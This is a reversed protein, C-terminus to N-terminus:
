PKPILSDVFRNVLERIMKMGPGIALPHGTKRNWFESRTADIDEQEGFRELMETLLLKMKSESFDNAKRCLEYIHPFVLHFVYCGSTKQITYERPTAFAEAYIESLAIWYNMLALAFPQPHEWIDDQEDRSLEKLAYGISDAFSTQTIIHEVRKRESPLQVREYWPSRPHTRLIDVIPIARAALVAKKSEFPSVTEEGKESITRHLHRQALSTPVSKRRKNVIYFMRMEDFRNECVLISIPLSYNGLKPNERAALRAAMLRHQGDIIQLPLSTYPISLIGLEGFGNIPSAPVFEAKGRINVLISTPFLGDEYLLYKAAKAVRSATLPRQYGRPNDESWWDISCYRLLDSARMVTVFLDVDRQKIKLANLRLM